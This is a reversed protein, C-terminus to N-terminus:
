SAQTDISLSKISPGDARLKERIHSPTIRDTEQHVDVLYPGVVREPQRNALAILAAAAEDQDAVAAHSLDRSWTENETLYVVDGDFLDNASVVQRKSKTM